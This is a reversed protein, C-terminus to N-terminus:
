PRYLSDGLVLLYVMIAQVLMNDDFLHTMVITFSAMRYYTTM